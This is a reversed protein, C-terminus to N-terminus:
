PSAPPIFAEPPLTADYVEDAIGYPGTITLTYNSACPMWMGKNCFDKHGFPDGDIDVICAISTIGSAFCKVGSYGLAVLDPVADADIVCDTANDCCMDDYPTNWM